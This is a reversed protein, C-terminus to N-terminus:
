EGMMRQYCDDCVVEMPENEPVDPFTEQYEEFADEDSWGKKYTEGCVACTYEDTMGVSRPLTSITTPLRLLLM